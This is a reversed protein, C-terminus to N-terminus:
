AGPAKVVPGASPSRLWSALIDELVSIRVPKFIYGDILGQSEGDEDHTVNATFAIIPVRGGSKEEALRIRYAADRGDMVPMHQDMLILHYRKSLFAEVAEQGNVVLDASYGLKELMKMIIMQNVHNDEAVLIRLSENKELNLDTSAEDASPRKGGLSSKDAAPLHLTFWFTSGGGLISNVGIKGGMRQVLRKCISLGLGTGGYKRATSGDAQVFPSFLKQIQDESMGIGSDRISIRIDYIQNVQSQLEAVLVIEGRDTFKVANGLLNLLVQGIRTADGLLIRPIKPDIEARLTLKKEQAVVGMVSVQGEILRPLDFDLTEIEMKGSEIKSFDLIENIVRLLIHGSERIMTVFKKQEQDLSTGSLLDSIGIIGSLPTRIEHSMNALFEAKVSAAQQATQQAQVLEAEFQRQQTVDRAVAYMMGGAPVSKWSLIKYQGDKCRFRNEFSLVKGGKSQREIEANTRDIDDPHVFDVIPSSYLEKLSYGLLEEYAPSLRKFYGDMGSICLLDLSLTFFRDREDEAQARKRNDRHVVWAASVILLLALVGGISVIVFTGHTLQNTKQIRAELLADEEQRLVEITKHLLEDLNKGENGNMVIQIAKLGKEQRVAIYKEWRAMRAELIPIFHDLEKLQVPNDSILARVRSLVGPIQDRSSKYLDLYYTQGSLHFGRLNSQATVYLTALKELETRVEVSRLMWQSGNILRSTSLNSSLTVLFILLCALGFGINTKIKM